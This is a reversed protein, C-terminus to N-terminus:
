ASGNLNYRYDPMKIDHQKYHAAPGTQELRDDFAIFTKYLM